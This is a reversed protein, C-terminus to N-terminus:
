KIQCIKRIKDDDVIYRKRMWKIWKQYREDNKCLENEIYDFLKEYTFFLCDYEHGKELFEAYEERVTKFHENGKPYITISTFHKFKDKDNKSEDEGDKKLISVGLIHNRWLQTYMQKEYKKEKIFCDKYIGETVKFYEKKGFEPDSCPETYKIEIGIICKEKRNNRYEIYVDFSTKDNLYESPPPPAYEIMKFDSDLDEIEYIEKNKKMDEDKIEKDLIHNLVDKLYVKGDSEYLPVFMNFPIHESRLMNKHNFKKDKTKLRKGKVWKKFIIDFDEYFNKGKETDDKSLLVKKGPELTLHHKKSWERQWFRAKKKFPTKDSKCYENIKRLYAYFRNLEDATLPQPEENM